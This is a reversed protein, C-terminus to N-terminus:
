IKMAGVFAALVRLAKKRQRRLLWLAILNYLCDSTARARAHGIPPAELRKLASRLFERPNPM